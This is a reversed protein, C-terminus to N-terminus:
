ARLPNVWKVGQFRVFDADTTYLTCGHELALAALHADTTLNSGTGLARLLCAFLVAHRGSPHLVQVNPQALWAEVRQLAEDVTWPNHLVVRNTSIRIFGLLTVWSLAVWEEGSLAANWWESATEHHPSDLNHAHILVNVDSLIM